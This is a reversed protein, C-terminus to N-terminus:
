SEIEGRGKRERNCIWILFSCNCDILKGNWSGQKPLPVPWCSYLLRPRMCTDERGRKRISDKLCKLICHIQTHENKQKIKWLDKRVNDASDHHNNHSRWDHDTSCTYIQNAYYVVVARENNSAHLLYVFINNMIYQSSHM